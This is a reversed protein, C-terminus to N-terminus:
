VSAGELVSLAQKGLEADPLLVNVGGGIESRANQVLAALEVHL